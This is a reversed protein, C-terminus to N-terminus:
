IIKYKHNTAWQMARYQGYSIGLARAKANIDNITSTRAEKPKEPSTQKAWEIRCDESCYVKYQSAKFITGCVPCEHKYERVVYDRCEASCYNKFQASPKFEKGCTRCINTAGPKRRRNGGTRACERSCYKQMGNIPTFISGCVACAKEDFTM